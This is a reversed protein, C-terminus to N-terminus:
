PVPGFLLNWQAAAVADDGTPIVDNQPKSFRSNSAPEAESREAPRVFADTAVHDKTV